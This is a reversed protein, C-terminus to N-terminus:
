SDFGLGFRDLTRLWLNRRGQHRDAAALALRTAQIGLYAAPEPPFPLPRSQVANLRTRETSAGALLDLMVDAGFRTAGVGLGTYGLGYAASGGFATGYFAFFRTCTDIAGGWQHTFRIGALQPFTEFFHEALTRFTTPRQDYEPKVQRGFYYVADYGGWLIRNDSTLRYYHFQNGEDSVGQRNKWGLSGLQEPSLPETMLAYDYVPVTFLRNRRVLSPFANTGLAARAASIHHGASTRLVIRDGRKKMGSIATNEFIKVGLREAADALGWGLRAPDLMATGERNWSGALYTDSNVEARVADRDIFGPTQRLAEVQYQATAVSLLGTREFSCDIGYRAVTSEIEQLNKLGLAELEDIEAPFRAVGNERGHTLSASCFGGNRGSAAWAVRDGEVLVVERNPDREKARVAAWLGSFGAGVIVLDTETARQLSEREAPRDAQDLWFPTPQADQLSRTVEGASVAPRRARQGRKAEM